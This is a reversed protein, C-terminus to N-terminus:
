HRAKFKRNMGPPPPPRGSSSSFRYTTFPRQQILPELPRPQRRKRSEDRDHKEPELGNLMFLFAFALIITCGAPVVIALLGGLSTLPSFNILNSILGAFQLFFIVINIFMAVFCLIISTFLLERMRFVAMALFLMWLIYNLTSLAYGYTFTGTPWAAVQFMLDLGLAFLSWFALVLSFILVWRLSELGSPLNFFYNDDDNAHPLLMNRCGLVLHILCLLIVTNLPFVVICYFLGFSNTDIQLDLKGAMSGGLQVLLVILNVLWQISCLVACVETLLQNRYSGVAMYLFITPWNLLGLLYGYGYVVVPWAPVGYIVAVIIGGILFALLVLSFALTWLQSSEAGRTDFFAQATREQEERQQQKLLQVEHTTLRVTPEEEEQTIGLVDTM